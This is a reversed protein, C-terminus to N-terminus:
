KKKAFYFLSIIIFFFLSIRYIYDGYKAYFTIKNSLKVNDRIIGKENYAISKTINGRQDIIASVGTNASRIISRRFEISRLKSYSLLQKHGQSDGWWGENTLIALVEAGNKIYESVFEGYMLEYCIIPAIYNKNESEFVTRNTQTARSMVTGGFDLLLNGLIPELITKYPLNEVGVVLKSKHYVQQKKSNIFSSNYIDVWTNNRIFNSTLTKTNQSNYIKYFQIGSVIQSNRNNLFSDLKQYFPTQFFLDLKYGPSESFYTEPAIILSNNINNNDIMKFFDDLIELNSRGYKENYPDINPQIISVNMNNKTEEYNKYIFLSIIIPIAISILGQSISKIKFRKNIKYSKYTKFFIINVLLVWLTGGFIGTYEYWQILKHSDSFSNGLLLSPWSFEWNLNFKEFVIWSSVFFILGLKTNLKKSIISFFLILLSMLLSYLVIAFIGGFVTSKLLWYSTISNWLFFSIFSYYFIKFTSKNRLNEELILLPVFSIFIIFIFGYTPWSLGLMLGSLISLIFYKKNM